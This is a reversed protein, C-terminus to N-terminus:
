FSKIWEEISPLLREEGNVISFTQDLDWILMPIAYKGMIEIVDKIYSDRHSQTISNITGVETCLISINNSLLRSFVKKIRKEIFAKNGKEFYHQYNYKTDKDASAPMAPMESANYPYPLGIIATKQPDWPAGQHTFIYPQYFHFTYIIKNDEPLLKLNILADIGNFNTGGVIWYRGLDEKRLIKMLQKASLNWEEEGIRPENYLGFFLNDNGIGHFKAIMQKWMDAIRQVEAKKDVVKYLRGYHYTIILNMQQQDIYEYVQYLEQLLLKEIQNQDKELFLDFSVPLRITKFGLKKALRIKAMLDPFHRLLEKDTKWYKEYYSINVGAKFKLWIKEQTEPIYLQARCNSSNLIIVLVTLFYVFLGVKSKNM